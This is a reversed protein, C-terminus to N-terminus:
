GVIDLAVKIWGPERGPRDSIGRGAALVGRHDRHPRVERPGGHGLIIGEKMGSMTGRIFHLDTGCIASRTIRVIADHGDEIRPEDVEDLRIDGIGHWVVAKM